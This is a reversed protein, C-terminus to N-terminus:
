QCGYNHSRAHMTPTREGAADDIPNNSVLIPESEIAAFNGGNETLRLYFIDSDENSPSSTTTGTDQWTVHVVNDDTIIFDPEPPCPRRWRPQECRYRRWAIGADFPRFVDVSLPDSSYDSRVFVVHLRGDTDFQLEPASDIVDSDVIVKTDSWQRSSLDLSRHYLDYDTLSDSQGNDSWVVHLTGSPSIALAPDSSTGDTIESTEVSVAVVDSWTDGDLSRYFIDPATLGDRGGVNCLAFQTCDDKWVIHM